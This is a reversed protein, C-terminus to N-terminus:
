SFTPRDRDRSRAELSVLGFLLIYFVFLLRHLMSADQLACRTRGVSAGGVEIVCRCRFAALCCGDAGLCPYSWLGRGDDYYVQVSRRMVSQAVVANKEALGM